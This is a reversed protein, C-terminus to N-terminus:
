VRARRKARPAPQEIEVVLEREEEEPHAHGLQELVRRILHRDHMEGCAYAQPQYPKDPAIYAVSLVLKRVGRV